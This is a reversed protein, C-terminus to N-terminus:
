GCGGCASKEGGWKAGVNKILVGFVIGVVVDEGEKFGDVVECGFLNEQFSFDKKRYEVCAEGGGVGDYPVVTWNQM